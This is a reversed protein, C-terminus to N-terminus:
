RPAGTGPRADCKDFAALIARFRDDAIARTDSHTFIYLDDDLVARRVIRGVEMPDMGAAIQEQVDPHRRKDPGGV